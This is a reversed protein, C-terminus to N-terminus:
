AVLDQDWNGMEKPVPGLGKKGERRLGIEDLFHVL